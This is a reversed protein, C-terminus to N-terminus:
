FSVTLRAGVKAEEYDSRALGSLTANLSLSATESFNVDLGATLNFDFEDTDAAGGGTTVSREFTWEAEASLGPQLSMGNALYHTYTAAGGLTLTGTKTTSSPYFTGLSDAQGPRM